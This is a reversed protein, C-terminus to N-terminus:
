PVDMGVSSYAEVLSPSDACQLKPLEDHISVWPLKSEIGLHYTPPEAAPDDLSATMMMIWETWYGIKGEYFLSTGCASCFGRRAIASSDFIAPTGQTFTVDARKFVTGALMPAGTFRQCIRCHCFMTGLSPGHVSYRIAGCLCGGEPVKDEAVPLDVFPLVPKKRTVPEGGPVHIYTQVPSPINKLAHVGFDSFQQRLNEDLQSFITSSICVGGVECLQELRAAINIGDGHIDDDDVLIDGLNVGIRYRLPADVTHSDYRAQVATQIAIACNVADTASPFEVLFGDGMLRVVRGRFQGINPNIIAFRHEQIQQLTGASNTAIRRSYDEIDGILVAALRRVPSQDNM